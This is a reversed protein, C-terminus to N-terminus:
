HMYNITLLYAFEVSAKGEQTNPPGTAEKRSELTAKKLDLLFDAAMEASAEYGKVGEFVNMGALSDCIVEISNTGFAVALKQKRHSEIM